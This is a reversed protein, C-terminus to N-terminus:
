RSQHPTAFRHLRPVDFETDLAFAYIRGGDAAAGVALRMPHPNSVIGVFSGDSRAVVIRQGTDGEQQSALYVLNDGVPFADISGMPTQAGGARAPAQTDRDQDSRALSPYETIRELEGDFTYVAFIPIYAHIVWLRDGLVALRIVQAAGAGPSIREAEHSLEGGFSYAPTSRNNGEEDPRARFRVVPSRQDFTAAFFHEGVRVMHFATAAESPLRQTGLLEGEGTFYDVRGNGTNLVWLTDGSVGLASPQRLEGPGGGASFMSRVYQGDMGFLDVRADHMDLTWVFNETVAVDIPGTHEGPPSAFVEEPEMLFSLDSNTEPSAHEACGAILMLALIPAPRRFAETM